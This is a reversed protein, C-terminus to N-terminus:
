ERSQRRSAGVSNTPLGTTSALFRRYQTQKVFISVESECCANIWARRVVKLVWSAAGVEGCVGAGARYGRSRANM